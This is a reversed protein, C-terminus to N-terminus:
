VVCPSFIILLLSCVSLVAARLCLGFRDSCREAMEGRDWLYPGPAMIYNLFDIDVYEAVSCISSFGPVMLIHRAGQGDDM